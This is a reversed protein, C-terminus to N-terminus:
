RINRWIAFPTKCLDRRGNVTAKEGEELVIQENICPFCFLIVM